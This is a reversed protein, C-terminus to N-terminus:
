SKENNLNQNVCNDCVFYTNHTPKRTEPNVQILGVLHVHNSKLEHWTKKCKKCVKWCNRSQTMQAADSMKLYNEVFRYQNDFIRIM